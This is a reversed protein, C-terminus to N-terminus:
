SAISTKVVEGDFIFYCAVYNNILYNHRQANVYKELKYSYTSEDYTTLKTGKKQLYAVFDDMSKDHLQVIKHRHNLM